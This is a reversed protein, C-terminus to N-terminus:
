PCADEADNEDIESGVSIFELFNGFEEITTMAELQLVGKGGAPSVQGQQLITLEDFDPDPTTAIVSYTTSAGTSHQEWTGAPTGGAEFWNNGDDDMDAEFFYCNPFKFQFEGGEYYDVEVLFV